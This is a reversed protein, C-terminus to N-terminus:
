RGDHAPPLKRGPRLIYFALLALLALLHGMRHPPGTRRHDPKGTESQQSRRLPSRLQSAHGTVTIQDTTLRHATGLRGLPYTTAAATPIAALLWPRRDEGHGYGLRKWIGGGVIPGEVRFAPQGSPQM